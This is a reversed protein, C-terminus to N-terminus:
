NNIPQLLPDPITLPLHRSQLTLSAGSLPCPVPKRYSRFRRKGVLPGHAPLLPDDAYLWNRWSSSTLGLMSVWSAPHRPPWSSPDLEAAPREWTPARHVSYGARKLYSYVTYREFTLGDAHDSALGLFVAHAGQVSMPLLHSPDDGDDAEGPTPWRCDVTGREILYVIEEPLLWLRNLNPRVANLPDNKPSHVVGMSKFLTSKPADIYAMNSPPHYVALNSRKPPHSRQFSIADHMAQRSADLTNLQLNTNHPEFDKEGRKPIKADDRSLISLFRFDQVEDSIDTDEAALGPAPIVDEDADAMHNDVTLRKTTFQIRAGCCFRISKCCRGECECECEGECEGRM